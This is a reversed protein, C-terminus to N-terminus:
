ADQGGRPALAAAVLLSWSFTFLAFQIIVFDM